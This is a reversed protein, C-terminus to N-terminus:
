QAPVVVMMADPMGPEVLYPVMTGSVSDYGLDKATMYPAYFMVHPPFSSTGGTTPDPGLRNQTSMMYLVGPKSPAKFRGDKYGSAIDAKIEAEPKGQSRLEEMRLHVPVLTRSGEADFCMPAVTTEDPKVFSRDVLCSVGNTGERVKEYGKPGLIYVTAKGSLEAPAASLSVAIQRERPVSADYVKPLDDAAQTAVNTSLVGICLALIVKMWRMRNMTASTEFGTASTICMPFM